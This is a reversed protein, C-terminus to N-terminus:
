ARLNERLTTGAYDTRFIGRRQLEPVVARVFQEFSGPFVTPTIIFGDCARSEFLDQLYDAVTAPSGVVQPTLESIGFRKGAEALTLGQAKTGQVIVDFSGRVAVDLELEDIRADMPYKSFDIGLHGSMIALGLKPDVLDNMYAQRERAIADTEGIIPDLSPLIVLEEPRRGAKVVRAKMDAYFDQMDSKEHQLTFVVEAWKAAFDRGRPSSGAQMIVPRGQPTRPVTNPGRTSIWKGAYDVHHVKSADAFVGGAKDLKLADPEWSDWLACCAELVEEARDYREEKGPLGTMGFNKAEQELASTVVNWAVRGGSIMDLTALSRALHFTNFFSTSITAGLGIHRTARAMVALLPLPDLLGMQGGRGIVTEFSGGLFDYFALIDAFFLSDFCGQELVRAVHEYSAPDLFANETEPHRWMGHHHSTPGALLFAMLHMKRPTM